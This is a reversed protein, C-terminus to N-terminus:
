WISAIVAYLLLGWLPLLLLLLVDRAEVSEKEMPKEDNQPAERSRLLEFFQLLPEGLSTAELPVELGFQRLLFYLTELHPM